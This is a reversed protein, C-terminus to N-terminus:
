RRKKEIIFTTVDEDDDKLTFVMSEGDILTTSLLSANPGYNSIYNDVMTKCDDYSDLHQISRTLGSSMRTFKWPKAEQAARRLEVDLEYRLESEYEAFSILGKSLQVGLKSVNSVYNM